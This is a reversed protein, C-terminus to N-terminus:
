SLSSATFGSASSPSTPAGGMMSDKVKKKEAAVKSVLNTLLARAAAVKVSDDRISAFKVGAKNTNALVKHLTSDGSRTLAPQALVQNVDSKPDAKAQQKKYNIAADNSGLMSRAQSTVDSPQKPVNQEASSSDPPNQKGAEIKSPSLADEAVKRILEIPASGKKEKAKDKVKKGVYLAGAGTAATATAKGAGRGAQRLGEDRLGDPLGMKKAAGSRRIKGIGEALDTAGTIKGLRSKVGSIKFLRELTAEDASAAKTQTTPTPLPSAPAIAANENKIPKLPQEPHSTDDNTAMGTNAKGVQVEEKQETPAKPLNKAIAHGGEGADINEASNNSELVDLSNPGKGPEQVNGEDAEKIQDAVYDLASAMKEIHESSYHDQQASDASAVKTSEDQHHSLQRAAEGNVDVQSATAAMAAKLMTQLTPLEAMEMTHDEATKAPLFDLGRAPSMKQEALAM